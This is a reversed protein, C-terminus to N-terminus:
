KLIRKLKNIREQKLLYENINDILNSKGHLVSTIGKPLGVFINGKDNCFKIFYDDSLLENVTKM